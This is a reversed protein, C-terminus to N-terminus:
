TPRFNDPGLMCSCSLLFPLRPVPTHTHLLPHVVMFFLPCPTLHLSPFITSLIPPLFLILCPLFIHTLSPVPHYILCLGTSSSLLCPFLFSLLLPLFIMPALPWATSSSTPERPHILRALILMCTPLLLPRLPLFLAYFPFPGTTCLVLLYPLGVTPHFLTCYPMTFFLFLKLITLTSLFLTTSLLLLQYPPPHLHPFPVLLFLQLLLAMSSAM